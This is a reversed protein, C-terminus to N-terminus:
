LKKGAHSPTDSPHPAARWPQRTALFSSDIFDRASIVLLYAVPYALADLFPFDSIRSWTTSMVPQDLSLALRLSV